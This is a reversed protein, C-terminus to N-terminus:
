KRLRPKLSMAHLGTIVDCLSADLSTMLCLNWWLTECSSFESRRFILAEASTCPKLPVIQLTNLSSSVNKVLSKKKTCRNSFAACFFFFSLFMRHSVKDFRARQLREPEFKSAHFAGGGWNWNYSSFGCWLRLPCWKILYAQSMGSM